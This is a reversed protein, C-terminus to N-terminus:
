RDRRRLGPAGQGCSLLGNRVDAAVARPDRTRPDGFGGGTPTIMRVIDGQKLILINLREIIQEDPRGPNLIVQGLAGPHGGQVGWAALQFRNLGRVAMVAEIDTNELDMVIAAGGRWKGAAYSDPQLQYQRVRIMTEAEVIETPTNKLSAQVGDVGDIGDLGARGGSGGCFPNIVNVRQRSTM